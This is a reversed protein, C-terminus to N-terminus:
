RILRPGGNPGSKLAFETLLNDHMDRPPWAIVNGAVDVIADEVQYWLSVSAPVRPVPDRLWSDCGDFTLVTTNRPVVRMLSDARVIAPAAALALCTQLFGRRNM